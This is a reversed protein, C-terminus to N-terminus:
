LGPANPDRRLRGRARLLPDAEGDEEVRVATWEAQRLRDLRLRATGAPVLVIAIAAFPRTSSDQFSQSSALAMMGMPGCVWELAGRSASRPISGHKMARPSPPRRQSTSPLSYM